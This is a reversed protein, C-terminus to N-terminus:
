RRRRKLIELTHYAIMREEDNPIVYVGVRSARTSILRAGEAAAERVLPAAHALAEAHTDPTRLQVLGVRTM